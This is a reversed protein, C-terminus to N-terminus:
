LSKLLSAVQAKEYDPAKSQLYVLWKEAADKEDLKICVKALELYSAWNKQDAKVIDEYVTKAFDYQGSSCYARALNESVEINTSDIKHAQAFYKVANQYEEKMLYAKGLDNNVELNNSSKAYARNLLVLAQDANGIDLYLVALNINSNVHNSDLKLAEQYYRIAEDDKKVYGSTLGANYVIEVKTASAAKDKLSYAKIANSYALENKKLGIQALSLNYYTAPDEDQPMYSLAKTFSTEAQSYKGLRNYVAGMEKYTTGNTPNVNLAKQFDGLASELQGQRVLVRGSAIFANEYSSDISGAKRYATLAETYRGQRELVFGLNYQAPAYSPNKSSASTFSTAADAYKKQNAQVRGLQYYYMYNDKDKAVASRLEKEATAYDKKEFAEMGLVYHAKPNDSQNKLAQNAYASALEQLQKKNDASISSSLSAEYLENSIQAYKGAAYEPDHAMLSGEAFNSDKEEILQKAQDFYKKAGSIDGSSLSAIGADIAKNIKDNKAKFAKNQAAKKAEEAERAAKEKAAQEEQARKIAAQEAAEAKEQAAREERQREMEQLAQAMAQNNRNQEELAALLDKNAQDSSGEQNITVNLANEDKLKKAAMATALLENIEPDSPDEVFLENLLKLAEDYLGSNMYSNILALKNSRSAALADESSEINQSGVKDGSNNCSRFVFLGALVAIVVCLAAIVGLLASNSKRPVQKNVNFLEEQIKKEREMTKEGPHPYDVTKLSSSLFHAPKSVVTEETGAGDEKVFTADSSSLRSTQEISSAEEESIANEGFVEDFGENPTLSIDPVKKEEAPAVAKTTKVASTKSAAAKTTKAAATKSASAKATTSKATTSKTAAKTSSAKATTAKATKASTTKTTKAASSKLATTKTKTAATKSAATKTTGAKKAAASTKSASAKETTKKAATKTGATTKGASSKTTGTKSKSATTKTAAKTKTTDSSNQKTAM